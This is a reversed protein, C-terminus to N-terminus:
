RDTGAKLAAVVWAFEERHALPAGQGKVALLL